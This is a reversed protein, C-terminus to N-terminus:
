KNAYLCDVARNIIEANHITDDSEDRQLIAVLRALRTRVAARAILAVAGSAGRSANLAAIADSIRTETPLNM